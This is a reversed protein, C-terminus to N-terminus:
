FDPHDELTVFIQRDSSFTAGVLESLDAGWGELSVEIPEPTLNLQPLLQDTDGSNARNVVKVSASLPVVSGLAEDFSENLPHSDTCAPVLACFLVTLSLQSKMTRAKPCVLPM